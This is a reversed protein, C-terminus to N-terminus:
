VLNLVQLHGETKTLSDLNCHQSSHFQVEPAWFVNLQQEFAWTDIFCLVCLLEKDLTVLFLFWGLVKLACDRLYFVADKEARTQMNVGKSDLATMFTPYFDYCKSLVVM